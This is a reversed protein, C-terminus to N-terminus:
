LVEFSDRISIYPLINVKVYAFDKSLLKKM